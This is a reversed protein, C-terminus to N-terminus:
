DRIGASLWEAILPGSEVLCSHFCYIFLMLPATNDWIQSSNHLLCRPPPASRYQLLPIGVSQFSRLSVLLVSLFHASNKPFLLMLEAAGEDLRKYRMVCWQSMVLLLLCLQLRDKITSFPRESYSLNSLFLPNVSSQQLGIFQHMPTTPDCVSLWLSLTRLDFWFNKPHLNKKWHGSNLWVAKM